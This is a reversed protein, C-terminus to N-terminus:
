VGWAAWCAGACCVFVGAAWVDVYGVLLLLWSVQGSFLSILRPERIKCSFSVWLVSVIPAVTVFGNPGNTLGFPEVFLSGKHGATPAM